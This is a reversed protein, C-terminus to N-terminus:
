VNQGEMEEMEMGEDGDFGGCHWCSSPIAVTLSYEDGDRDGGRSGHDSCFRRNCHDCQYQAANACNPRECVAQQIAKM